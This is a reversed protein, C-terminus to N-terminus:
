RRSVMGRLQTLKRIACAAYVLQLCYLVDLCAVGQSGQLLRSRVSLQRLLRPRRDARDQRVTRRRARLLM